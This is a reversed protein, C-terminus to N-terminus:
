RGASIVNYEVAEGHFLYIEFRPRHVLDDRRADVQCASIAEKLDKNSTNYRISRMTEADLMLWSEYEVHISSDM